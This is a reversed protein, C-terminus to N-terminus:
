IQGTSGGRIRLSRISWAGPVRPPEVDHSPALVIELERPVPEAWPDRSMSVDAAFRAVVDRQAPQIDRLERVDMTMQGGEEFYGALRALSWSVRNMDDDWFLIVADPAFFRGVAEMDARELAAAVGLIGDAVEQQVSAPIVGVGREVMDRATADAFEVQGGVAPAAELVARALGHVFDPFAAAWPEGRRYRILDWARWPKVWIPEHLAWVQCRPQRSGSADLIANVARRAAENAAEMTALNTYTRVYDAALFLNPIGTRASPRYQWSNPQNVLLPEDNTLQGGPGPQIAPDLMAPTTPHLDGDSLGSLSAKLQSWVEDIVEKRTCDIARKGNNGRTKWDSVDVSLVTQVTGDGYDRAFGGAAYWFQAQSISTLAWPTGLLMQHGSTVPVNNRLYFQIGSMWDVHGALTTIGNLSPDLQRMTSTILPGMKEVPLAAVYHDATVIRQQGNQHITVGSIRGGACQFGTVTAGFQYDVGRKDVLYELWPDIWVKNTPGNLVRDASVGPECLNFLLQLLVDGVTKTNAHRPDAAVLVRPTRGLYAQYNQDRPAADIYNWWSEGEFARARREDCSTLVEWVRESYFEIDEPKLGAATTLYGSAALLERIEELSRPFRAPVVLHQRGNFQILMQAASVLNDFVGERNTGYPIRKMTDPLHQYFGPFFRFGHEAPLDDRGGTGTNPVGFSRAKGGAVDPQREYVTVDFGREALEHAASMGAVGGGLIIVHRSM